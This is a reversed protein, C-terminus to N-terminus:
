KAAMLGMNRTASLVPPGRPTRTRMQANPRSGVKDAWLDVFALLPDPSGGGGGGGGGEAAVCAVLAPRAREILAFFLPPTQLLVRGLLCCINATM